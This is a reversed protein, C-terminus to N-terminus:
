EKVTYSYVGKNTGFYLVERGSVEVSVMDNVRVGDPGGPVATTQWSDGFDASSLFFLTGERNQGSALIIGPNSASHTFTYITAGSFVSEWTQGADESRFIGGSLGLLVRSSQKPDIAVDYTTGEFVTNEYIQLNKENWNKGGDISQDLIPQFIANSGGAWVINPNNGDAKIFRLFGLNQWSGTVLEWSQGRDASKAIDLGGPGGAFLLDPNSPDMVLARPVRQNVDGSYGNRYHIWTQGGDTTKAITSKPNDNGFDVSAIIERHSFVVFTRIAANGLGLSQWDEDETNVSKHYLGSDTAAYLLGDRDALEFTHNQRFEGEINELEGTGAGCGTFTISNLVIILPLLRNSIQAKM